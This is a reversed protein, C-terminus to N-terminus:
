ATTAALARCYGRLLAVERELRLLGEAGGSLDGSKGIEELVTAAAMLSHASLAAAGGKIFHAARRIVESDVMALANAIVAIQQELNLLFEQLLDMVVARDGGLMAVCGAFDLPALSESADPGAPSFTSLFQEDAMIFYDATNTELAPM